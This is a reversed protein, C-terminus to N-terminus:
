IFKQIVQKHTPTQNGGFSRSETKIECNPHTGLFTFFDGYSTISGDFQKARDLIRAFDSVYSGTTSGSWFRDLVPQGNNMAVVDNEMKPYFRLGGYADKSSVLNGNPDTFETTVLLRIKYFKKTPDNNNAELQSNRKLEIEKVVAQVPSDLIPKEQAETSQNLSEGLSSLDLDVASNNDENILENLAM